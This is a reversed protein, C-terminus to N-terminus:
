SEVPTQEAHRTRLAQKSNRIVYALVAAITPTPLYKTINPMRSYFVSVREIASPDPKPGL